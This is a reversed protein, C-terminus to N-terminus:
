EFDRTLVAPEVFMDKGEKTGSMEILKRILKQVEATQATILFVDTEIEEHQIAVAKESIMEGLRFYNLLYYKLNNESFEIRAIFHTPPPSPDQFGEPL